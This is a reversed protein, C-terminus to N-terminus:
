GPPTNELRRFRRYLTTRDVGNAAALENVSAVGRSWTAYLAAVAEDTLKTRAGRLVNERNTVPELHRWNCCSRHPCDNGLQCVKPDHCTHDPMQKGPIPAVFREYGWRPAFTVIKGNWFKAAGQEDVFGTWPWCEDDGRRDVHSWWRAEDDGVIRSTALPDGRRDLRKRHKDCLGNAAQGNACGAITCIRRKPGRKGVHLPDGHRKWRVYHVRCFDKCYGPNGCEPVSCDM